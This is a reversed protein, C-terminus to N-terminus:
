RGSARLKKLQTGMWRFSRRRLKAFYKQIGVIAKRMPTLMERKAHIPYDALQSWDRYSRKPSVSVKPAWVEDASFASAGHIKAMVSFVSQDHRHKVFGAPLDLRSPANNILFEDATMTDLWTDVFERTSEQARLFVIGGQMQGTDTIHSAGEVGFFRFVEPKTWFKEVFGLQSALIGSESKEVDNVYELFRAKGGANLRCGADLYLLVEGDDLTRLVQRIVQPKWLWYGYGPTERNLRRGHERLFDSDLDRETLTHIGSFVGLNEAQGRLTKLARKMRSDAFSVLTLRTKPGV